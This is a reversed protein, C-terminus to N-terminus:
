EVTVFMRQVNGGFLRFRLEYDGAVDPDPSFQVRMLGVPVGTINAPVEVSTDSVLEFDRATGPARISVTGVPAGAADRVLGHRSSTMDITAGVLADNDHGWLYFGYTLLDLPQGDDRQVTQYIANPFPPPPGPNVTSLVNISPRSRPLIRVRATGSLTESSEPDPQITVEVPYGGPREPNTFGLAILHVQKVGPAEPPDAFWDATATLVFTNTAQEWTVDPFPLQPSQPWGQLFVATSCDVVLPPGCTPGSPVVPDGGNVFAEPLTVQVTGGEYMDIGGVSPDLDAFSLVFDTQAGATVGDPAVPARVTSVDLKGPAALAHGGLLSLALLMASLLAVTRRGM